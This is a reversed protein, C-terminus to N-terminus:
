GGGDDSEDEAACSRDRGDEGGHAIPLTDFLRRQWWHGLCLSRVCLRNGLRSSQSSHTVRRQEM